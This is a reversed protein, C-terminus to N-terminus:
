HDLPEWRRPGALLSSLLECVGPVLKTTWRNGGGPVPKSAWHGGYVEMVILLTDNRHGDSGGMGM